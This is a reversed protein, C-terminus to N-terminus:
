RRSFESIKEACWLYAILLEVAYWVVVKYFRQVCREIVVFAEKVKRSDPDNLPAAWLISSHARRGKSTKELCFEPRAM